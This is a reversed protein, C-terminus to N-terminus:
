RAALEGPLPGSDLVAALERAAQRTLGGSIQAGVEGDIGDPVEAYDIFPLSAVRGDVVIAFHQASEISPVGPEALGAGRHAVTRTLDHFASEGATTFTLGV